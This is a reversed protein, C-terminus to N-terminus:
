PVIPRNVTYPTRPAASREELTEVPAVTGECVVTTLHLIDQAGSYADNDSGLRLKAFDDNRRPSRQLGMRM